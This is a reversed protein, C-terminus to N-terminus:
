VRLGITTYIAIEFSYKGHKRKLMHLVLEMLEIDRVINNINLQYLLGIALFIGQLAKPNKLSEM